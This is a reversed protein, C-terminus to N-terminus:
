IEKESPKAFGFATAGIAGEAAGGITDDITAVAVEAKLPVNILLVKTTLGPVLWSELM